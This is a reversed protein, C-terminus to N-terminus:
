RREAARSPWEYRGSQGAELVVEGTRGRPRVWASGEHVEIRTMSRGSEDSVEVSFETGRHGTVASPTREEFGGKTLM